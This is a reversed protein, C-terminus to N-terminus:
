RVPAVADAKAALLEVRAIGAVRLRALVDLVRQTDAAADAKVQLLADPHQAHWAGARVALEDMAFVDGALGIRGDAAVVLAQAGAQSPELTTSRAPDLEFPDAPSLAGVLMFSVMLLFVINILPLM